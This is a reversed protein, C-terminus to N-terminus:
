REEEQSAARRIACGFAKTQPLRPDRGALVADLAARLDAAPVASGRPDDDVRGRYRLTFGADLVFAEPAFQVGLQDAVASGPDLLVPLGLRRAQEAAGAPTEGANSDVGVVAVGRDAYDRAVEALRADYAASVPCRASVFVLVLAGRAALTALDLQRGDAQALSFPALKQGPTLSGARAPGALPLCALVAPLLSWGPRM